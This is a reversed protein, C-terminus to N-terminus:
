GGMTWQQSLNGPQATAIVVTTGAVNSGIDMTLGNYNRITGDPLVRWQQSTGGGAQCAATGIPTGPANSGLDLCLGNANRITGDIPATWQQSPWGSPQCVATIMRSGPNNSTLDACLGNHNRIKGSLAHLEGVAWQQSANGVGCTATGIPTGGANAGIDACLGNANRITGDSSVQWRQSPNGSQVVATVVLAGAANSGIDMALGNYNRITGDSLVRWQQSTFGAQCTVTVVKTGVANSGLDMCLGNANRITITATQQRIWDTINDVRAETSGQRTEHSVLCGHQWTTSHLAVLEVTGARQRLTPGGADGQCTDVGDAGTVSATTDTTANVTFPAIRAQDPAWTDATRGYGAVLLSEASAPATTSVTAPTIGTVPANLLGLTVDRDSTPAVYTVQATYGTNTATRGLIVTTPKPPAGAQLGTGGFCSTATAIWSTDVLAASCGNGDVGPSGVELRGVFAYASDTM